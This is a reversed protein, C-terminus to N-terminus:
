EQEETGSISISKSEAQPRPLGALARKEDRQPGSYYEPRPFHAGWINEPFAARNPFRGGAFSFNEGLSSMGHVM